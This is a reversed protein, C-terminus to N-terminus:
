KSVCGDYFVYYPHVEATFTRAIVASDQEVIRRANAEDTAKVVIMGKDSYRAGLLIVGDQRLQSLRRSHFDMYPQERPGKAADWNEGPTYLIIFLPEAREDPLFSVSVTALVAFALLHIRSM